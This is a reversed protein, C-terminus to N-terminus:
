GVRQFTGTITAGPHSQVDGYREQLSEGISSLTKGLGALVANQAKIPPPIQATHHKEAARMMDQRRTNIIMEHTQNIM